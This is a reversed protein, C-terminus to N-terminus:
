TSIEGTVAIKLTAERLETVLAPNTRLLASVGDVGGEIKEDYDLIYSYKGRSIVTGYAKATQALCAIADVGGSGDPQFFLFRFEGEAGENLGFKGKGIKWKIVKGIKDGGDLLNAGPKLHLDIAKAHKLSHGSPIVHPVFKATFSDLNARVPQLVVICTGNPTGDEGHKRLGTYAKRIFGTILSAWTAIKADEHLGKKVNDKTEGSAMEDIVGLHFYGSDIMRNAATLLSEAPQQLALDEETVDIFVVNGITEGRQGATATAPNIGKQRLEDDSFKLTIGCKRMFDLDPKYGFSMYFVNSADGYKSQCEAINMNAILNKGVGDVGWLQNVTGRPWGGKLEIDLDMIGTPIRDAYPTRVEDLNMIHVAGDLNKAVGHLFKTLDQPM